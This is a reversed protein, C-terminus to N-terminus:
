KNQYYIDRIIRKVKYGDGEPYFGIIDNDVRYSVWKSRRTRVDAGLQEAYEDALLYQKKMCQSSIKDAYSYRKRECGKPWQYPEAEVAAIQKLVQRPSIVNTLFIYGLVLVFIILDPSTRRAPRTPKEAASM